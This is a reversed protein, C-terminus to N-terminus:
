DDADLFQVEITRGNELDQQLYAFHGNRDTPKADVIFRLDLRKIYQVHPDSRSLCDEM